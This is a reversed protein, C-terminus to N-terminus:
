EEKHFNFTYRLILSHSAIRRNELSILYEATLGQKFKWGFGASTIFDAPVWYPQPYQARTYNDYYYRIDSGITRLFSSSAFANRWIRGQIAIHTSFFSGREGVSPNPLITENVRGESLVDYQIYYLEPPKSTNFLGGSVDANIIIRSTPVFGLGVGFRARRGLFRRNDAIQNLQQRSKMREYLYSGEIGYFLRKFIPARFRIGAESSITSIRLRDGAFEPIGGFLITPETTTKNQQDSSNFSTRYYLGLITSESFKHVMGLTISTRKLVAESDITQRNKIGMGSYSYDNLFYGYGSLKDIGIGLSTKGKPGLKYSALLSANIADIKMFESNSYNYDTPPDSYSVVDTLKTRLASIGGGVTLRTGEVPMFFTLQPALTFDNPVTPADGESISSWYQYNRSSISPVLSLRGEATKFESAYAPNELSDFHPDAYASFFTPSLDTSQVLSDVSNQYIEGIDRNFRTRGNLESGPGPLALSIDGGPRVIVTGGPTVLRKNEPNNLPWVEVQGEQVYVTTEGNQLVDVIFETGRVAISASPSNLQYPNPKGGYHHIKVQVRGFDIRLLERVTAAAPFENLVVRSNQLVTILSEDSLKIVVRENSHTLIISGLEIKDMRRLPFIGSRSKP